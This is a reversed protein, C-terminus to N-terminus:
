YALKGNSRSSSALTAFCCCCRPLDFPSDPAASQAACTIPTKGFGVQLMDDCGDCDVEQSDCGPCGSRRYGVRAAGVERSELDLYRSNAVLTLTPDVGFHPHSPMV